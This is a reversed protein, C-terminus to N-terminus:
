GAEPPDCDWCKQIGDAVASRMLKVGCESCYLMADEIWRHGSAFGYPGFKVNKPVPRPPGKMYDPIVPYFGRRPM